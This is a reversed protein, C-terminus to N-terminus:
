CSNSNVLLSVSEFNFLIINPYYICLQHVNLKCYLCFTNSIRFVQICSIYLFLVTNHSVNSLQLISVLEILDIVKEHLSNSKKKVSYSDYDLM